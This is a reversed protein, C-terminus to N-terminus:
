SGYLTLDQFAFAGDAARAALFDIDAPRTSWAQPGRQACHCSLALSEIVLVPVAALAAAGGPPRGM